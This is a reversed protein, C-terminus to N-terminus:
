LGTHRITSALYCDDPPGCVIAWYSGNQWPMYAYRGGSEVLQITKGPGILTVEFPGELGGRHITLYRTKLENVVSASPAVLKGDRWRSSVLPKGDFVTERPVIALEASASPHRARLTV